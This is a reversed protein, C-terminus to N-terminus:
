FNANLGVSFTRQKPYPLGLIGGVNANDPDQGPFKTWIGLNHGQVFVKLMSLHLLNLVSKSFNYTISVNQLRVYDGNFLYRTSTSNGGETNSLMRKPNAAVDGPKQWRDLARKDQNAYPVRGDNVFLSQDYIQFGYQYYLVASLEFNRYAFANTIGGYGDPQPKGVFEKKAASHNNTPKGDLDLWQPKGDATNVGVWRPMYFSNFNRGEENALIDGSISALPVNAKVLENQNTSWNGNLTWRFNRTRILDIAVSLEIGKNVINGINDLIDPYGTISPLKTTYIVDTTKKSYVDATIGLREHFIRVEIGADWTFTREWQIDRNGPQTGPVFADDDLYMSRNLLYYRTNASVAASSGAVGLSGRLKLYNLWNYTGKMFSEETIVWGAGTSWFTGWQQRDGFRSSGDRRISTTVFYKNRYDYNGQGFLSLLTQKSNYGALGYMSYGPSNLEDYEPSPSSGPTGRAEGHLMRETIVQAEQGILINVAHDKNLKKDFRLINTTIVNARRVDKESIRGSGTSFSIPDFVRPDVKEKLEALMFDAGLSSTFTFYKLLVLEIYLKALGRYSVNRNINYEAEAVPNTARPYPYKLIYSGDALRVPNLPSTVLAFGNTSSGELPNTYNQVNYSLSTNVGLKIWNLPRNEFNFRLSKRDYGTKKVIGNQKTYEVNLYFNQKENGGSMSIQNTITTARNTFVEDIWNSEPYFSTDGDTSVQYPFRRFLDQRIADNTWLIPDTNKYTEYLLELYEQQNLLEVKGDPRSEIDTQHRFSFVTKGPKGRKTTVLIVGNSAKSGYLAIAAADKLVSISAIDSPTLQALPNSISTSVTTSNIQFRDQTVPVGDIVFLPNRVTSGNFADTGTSIGRLVMNSVGGGPQGTGNTIQLGPVMGQLSKDVSRNPLGEIASGKVVTVAGTNARQTTTNYATVVTENLDNVDINLRALITKGKVPIERKEYGISSIVLVANIAVSPLSFSGKEDTNSGDKTGKIMVTAGPIPTGKADTVLGSVTIQTVNSDAISILNSRELEEKKKTISVANENYVWVYDKGLVKQLVDEVRANKVDVTVIKRDNVYDAAYFFNYGAQKKITKFVSILPVDSGKITVKEEGDQFSWAGMFIAAAVLFFRSLLRKLFVSGSKSLTPRTFNSM